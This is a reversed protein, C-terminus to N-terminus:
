PSGSEVEGSQARVRDAGNGHRLKNETDMGARVVGGSRKELAIRELRRDMEFAEGPQLDVPRFM